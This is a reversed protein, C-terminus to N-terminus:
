SEVAELVATRLEAIGLGKDSSTVIVEPHAAPHLRAEALTAAHVADLETAKIKDAKTLVLRYSVAAVDLMALVDRDVDKIGHRSDILVLTRKLVARGRLYDNILFRWQKVVDKPAKAFGYGPMDVLRFILPTGVDFFNLEQTRGPTVSTRALGNRNTLANILSSKGVNSRGAFAVEPVAADPLHKLAPASKLFAIPGAFAKRAREAREALLREDDDNMNTVGAFAPTWRGSTRVLVPM